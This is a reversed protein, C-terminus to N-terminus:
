IKSKADPRRFHGGVELARESKGGGDTPPWLQYIVCFDGNRIYFRPDRHYPLLLQWPHSILRIIFDVLVSKEWLMPLVILRTSFDTYWPIHFPYISHEAGIGRWSFICVFIDTKFSINGVGFIFRTQPQRIGGWSFDPLSGISGVKFLFLFM